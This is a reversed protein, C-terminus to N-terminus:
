GELQSALPSQPQIRNDTPDGKLFFTYYEPTLIEHPYQSAHQPESGPSVFEILDNMGYGRDAIVRDFMILTSLCYKPHGFADYCIPGDNEFVNLIEDVASIFTPRLSYLILFWTPLFPRPIM